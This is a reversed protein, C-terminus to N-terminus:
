AATCPPCGSRSGRPLPRAKVGGVKKVFQTASAATHKMARLVRARRPALIKPRVRKVLREVRIAERGIFSLIPGHAGSPVIASRRLPADAVPPARTDSNSISYCLTETERWIHQRGSPIDASSAHERCPVSRSMRSSKVFSASRGGATSPNQYTPRSPNSCSACREPVSRGDRRVIM